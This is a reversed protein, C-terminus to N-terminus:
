MGSQVMPMQPMFNNVTKIYIITGPKKTHHFDGIRSAADTELKEVSMQATYAMEIASAASPYHRHILEHFDSLTKQEIIEERLHPSFRRKNERSRLSAIQHINFGVNRPRKVIVARVEEDADVLTYSTHSKQISEWLKYCDKKEQKTFLLIPMVKLLHSFCLMPLMM